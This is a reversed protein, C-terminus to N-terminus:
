VTKQFCISIFKKQNKLSSVCLDWFDSVPTADYLASLCDAEDLHPVTTSDEVFLSSSSFLNYQSSLLYILVACTLSSFYFPTLGETM